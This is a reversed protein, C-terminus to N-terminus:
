ETSNYNESGVEEEKQRLEREKDNFDGNGLGGNEMRAIPAM